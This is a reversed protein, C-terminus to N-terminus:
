AGEREDRRATWLGGALLLAVVTAVAGFGPLGDDDEEDTAERELTLTPTPEDGPAVELETVADEHGSASAELTYTGPSLSLDFAGDSVETSDTTTGDQEVVITALEIPEGDDVEVTGEVQIPEPELTADLTERDDPSVEFSENTYGTAGVQVEHTTPELTLTAVGSENTQTVSADAADLPSASVTAGGIPDATQAGTVAVSFPVPDPEPPDEEPAPPGIAPPTTEPEEVTLTEEHYEDATEIATTYEGTDELTTSGSVATENGASLEVSTNEVTENGVRLSVTDAVTTNGLNVITTSVTVSEDTEVTEPIEPSEIGLYTDKRELSLTTNSRDGTVATLTTTEPSFARADAEVTVNEGTGPVSVTWSGNDVTGEFSTTNQQATVSANSLGDGSEDTVTGTLTANGALALAVSENAASGVPGVETSKTEYGTGTATVTYTTNTGPVAQVATGTEDTTTTELTEGDPREILVSANEIGFGGDRATSDVEISANGSLAIPESQATTENSAAVLPDTATWEYGPASARVTLNTESPVGDVEYSGNESHTLPYRVDAPTDAVVTANELPEGLSDDVVTGALGADGTLSIPTTSVTEDEGVSYTRNISENATYGEATAATITYTRNGPVPLTYDDGDVENAYTAEGDTVTVTGNPLAGEATADILTGEISAAGELALTGTDATEGDDVTLVTGATEFGDAGVEVYLTQNTGPVDDISLAGDSDSVSSLEVTSGDPMIVSATANEIPPTSEHLGDVVTGTITGSGELSANATPSALTDISSSMEQSEFGPAEITLDYTEGLTVDDITYSGDSELDVTHETGDQATATVTGTEVAGGTLSDTVVGDISLDAVEIASALADVAGHGVVENPPDDEDELPVATDVIASEIQEGEASPDVEALLAGVGAAHPTAASTGAYGAREYQSISSPAVVDIGLRGDITPGRSSYGAVSGTYTPPDGWIAIPASGVSQVVESTAPAWLSQEATTYELDLDDPTFLSFEHSGDAGSAVVEIEVEGYIDACHQIMSTEIEVYPEVPYFEECAFVEGPTYVYVDYYDPDDWGDWTIWLSESGDMDGVTYSEDGDAWELRDNGATDVFSGNWSSQSGMNGASTYWPTGDAVIPAIEQSLDDEGDLPGMSPGYGLSMTVIDVDATELYDIIQFISTQETSALVLDADPAIDAVVEASATGHLNEEDRYVSDDPYTDVVSDSYKPNDPNFDHDVVAITTDTGNIGMDHLEDVGMAEVGESIDDDSVSAPTSEITSISRVATRDALEEVSDIPLDAVIGQELEAHIVGGEATVLDTLPDGEGTGRIIVEVEDTEASEPSVAGSDELQAALDPSVVDRDASENFETSVASDGAAVGVSVCLIAVALVVVAIGLRRGEIRTSM